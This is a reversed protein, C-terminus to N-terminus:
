YQLLLSFRPLRLHPNTSRAPAPLLLHLLVSSDTAPKDGTGEAGREAGAGRAPAIGAAAPAGPLQLQPLDARRLSLPSQRKPPHGASHPVKHAVGAAGRTHCGSSDGASGSVLAPSAGLAAQHTGAARAPTSPDSGQMWQWTEVKLVKLIGDTVQGLKLCRATASFGAPFFSHLHLILRIIRPQRNGTSWWPFTRSLRTHM